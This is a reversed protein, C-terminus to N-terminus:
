CLRNKLGAVTAQFAANYDMAVEATLYNGRDDTFQDNPYEPGGVLAGYLIHASPGHYKAQDWGCSGDQPLPCTSGRHHPEQPPNVGFGVVFSRGTSGLAYDIQSQALAM